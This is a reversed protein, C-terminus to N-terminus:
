RVYIWIWKIGNFFCEMLSIWFLYFFPSVTVTLVLLYSLMILLHGRFALLRAKFFVIMKINCFSLTNCFFKTLCFCMEWCIQLKVMITLCHLLVFTSLKDIWSLCLMFKGNSMSWSFTNVFILNCCVTEGLSIFFIMIECYHNPKLVRSNSGIM